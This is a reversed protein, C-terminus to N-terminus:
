NTYNHVIPHYQTQPYTHPYQQNQQQQQYNRFINGNQSQHQQYSSTPRFAANLAEWTPPPAAHISTTSFMPQTNSQNLHPNNNDSLYPNNNDSNFQPQILDGASTDIYVPPSQLKFSLNSQYKWMERPDLHSYTETHVTRDDDGFMNDMTLSSPSKLVEPYDDKTPSLDILDDSDEFVAPLHSKQQPTKNKTPPRAFTPISSVSFEDDKEQRMDRFSKLRAQAMMRDENDNNGHEAKEKMDRLSALRAQSILFREEEDSRAVDRVVKKSAYSRNRSPLPPRTSQFSGIQENTDDFKHKQGNYRPRGKVIPDVNSNDNCVPTNNTTTSVVNDNKFQLAKGYMQMMKAGGLEFINMFQNYEQGDLYLSFQNVQSPIGVTTSWATIHITHTGPFIHEPIEFSHDLRTASRNVNKNLNQDILINNFYIFHKRSTVSWVLSIEMEFGRCEVGTKGQRLASINAFGFRWRVNRKTLSIHKGTTSTQFDVQYPILVPYERIMSVSGTSIGNRTNSQTRM